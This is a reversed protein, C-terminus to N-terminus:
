VCDADFAQSFDLYDFFDVQGDLNTDALPSDDGFAQSFDLYDFFDVQGDNNFDAACGFRVGIIGEVSTGGDCPALDVNIYVVRNEALDLGPATSNSPNLDTVQFDCVQDDDVDILQGARLIVRADQAFNPGARGVILLNPTGSTVLALDDVNNISIADVAGAFTNGGVVAGERLIVNGNYVVIEDQSTAASTDAALAWNGSNNIAPIRFAVFAEGVQGGAVPSGERAVLSDTLSLYVFRDSTTPGTTGLEHIRHRGDDSVDYAFTTTAPNVTLGAYTNGGVILPELIPAAPNQVRWFVRNNTTGGETSTTGGVWFAAGSPTMTPRSNFTAFQGPLADLSDGDQLLLGSQTWVADNGNVSPSYIFGGANSAGMTGEAGTLVAPLGDSNFWVPGTGIWVFNGASSNGTFAVRGFGDTYPDNIASVTTAGGPLTDGVRVVLKAPVVGQALTLSASAALAAFSVSAAFQNM